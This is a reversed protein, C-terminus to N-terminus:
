VVAKILRKKLENVVKKTLPKDQFHSDSFFDRLEEKTILGQYAYFCAIERLDYINKFSLSKIVPIDASTATVSRKVLRNQFKRLTSEQGIRELYATIENEYVQYYHPKLRCLQVLFVIMVGLKSYHRFIGIKRTLPDKPEPIELLYNSGVKIKPPVLDVYIAKKGDDSVFNRPILDIGVNMRDGKDKKMLDGLCDFTMKMNKIIDKESEAFRFNRELSEGMFPSIHIVVLRGNIPLLVIGKDPPLCVKLNRLKDCYTLVHGVFITAQKKTLKRKEFYIKIVEASGDPHKAKLVYSNYSDLFTREVTYPIGLIKLEGGKEINGFFGKEKTM